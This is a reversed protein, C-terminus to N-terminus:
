QSGSRKFFLLFLARVLFLVIWFITASNKHIEHRVKNLTLILGGFVLLPWIINYYPRLVISSTFFVYWLGWLIYVFLIADNGSQENKTKRMMISGRTFAMGNMDRDSSVM